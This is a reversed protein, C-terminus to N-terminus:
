LNPLPPIQADTGGGTGAMAEILEEGKGTPTFFGLGDAEIYGQRRLNDAVERVQGSDYPYKTTLASFVMGFPIGTIRLLTGPKRSDIVPKLVLMFDRYVEPIQQLKDTTWAM